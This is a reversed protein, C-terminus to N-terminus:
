NSLAYAQEITEFRLFRAKGDVRHFLAIYEQTASELPQIPFLESKGHIEIIGFARPIREVETFVAKLEAEIAPWDEGSMLEETVRFYGRNMERKM